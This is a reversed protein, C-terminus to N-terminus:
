VRRQCRPAPSLGRFRYVVLCPGEIDQQDELTFFLLEAVRELRIDKLLEGYKLYKRVVPLGYQPEYLFRSIQQSSVSDSPV